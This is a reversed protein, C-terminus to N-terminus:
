PVSLHLSGPWACCLQFVEMYPPSFPSVRSLSETVMIWGLGHTHM